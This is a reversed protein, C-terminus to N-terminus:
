QPLRKVPIYPILRLLQLGDSKIVANKFKIVRISNNEENAIPGLLHGYGATTISMNGSVDIEELCKNEKLLQGIAVMQLFFSKMLLHSLSSFSRVGEDSLENSSLDLIRLSSNTYLSNSFDRVGSDGIKNEAFHIERITCSLSSFSESLASLGADTILNKNMYLSKISSKTLAFALEKVEEDGIQTENLILTELSGSGAIVNCLKELPKPYLRNQGLDLIQIYPHLKLADFLFDQQIEGLSSNTLLLAAVPICPPWPDSLISTLTAITDISIERGCMSLTQPSQDLRDFELHRILREDIQSNSAKCRHKYTILESRNKLYRYWMAVDSALDCRLLFSKGHAVLLLDDIDNSTRKDMSARQRSVNFTNTLKVTGKLSDETPTSFYMLSDEKLVMWRRKWKSGLQNRKKHMWGVHLTRGYKGSVIEASGNSGPGATKSKSKSKSSKPSGFVKSMEMPAKDNPSNIQKRLVDVEARIDEMADWLAKESETLQQHDNKYRAFMASAGNISTNMMIAEGRSNNSRASLSRRRPSVTSEGNFVLSPAGSNPSIVRKSEDESTSDELELDDSDGAKSSRKADGM